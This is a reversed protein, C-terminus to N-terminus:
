AIDVDTQIDQDRLGELIEVLDRKGALAADWNHRATLVVIRGALCGWHPSERRMKSAPLTRLRLQSIWPHHESRILRASCAELTHRAVLHQSAAVRTHPTGFGGRSAGFVFTRGGHGNSMEECREGWM